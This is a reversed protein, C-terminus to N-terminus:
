SCSGADRAAKDLQDAVAGLDDEYLHGYRDLTLSASAHGLMRQLTKINAGARIALSACTHRLEHPTFGDPCGATKVAGSFWDRRANRVRMPGGGGAPFVLEEPARGDVVKKLRAVLFAPIPVDRGKGSKPAGWELKGNVETVSQRVYFRARDLDVSGVRLAALEGWRLGCYALTYVIDARAKAASALSAVQGATLYRRQKEDQKPLDIDAAPNAVLRKSKVATALIQHLVTHHKRVSGPKMQDSMSGIWSQVGEHTIASIYIDGWKPLVQADLSSQYRARTSPQLNAKGALWMDAYDRVTVRGAAPAVYSGTLKAVEITAAFAEAQKKTTFGRKDTQRHDPTRYRVRYRKQGSSTM